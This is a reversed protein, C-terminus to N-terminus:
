WALGNKVVELESDQCKMIAQAPTSNQKGRTQPMGQARGDRNGKIRRFTRANNRESKKKGRNEKRQRERPAM